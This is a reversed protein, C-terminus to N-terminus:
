LLIFKTKKKIILKKKEKSSVSIKWVNIQYKILYLNMIVILLFVHLFTWNGEENCRYGGHMKKDNFTCKEDFFLLNKNNPNCNKKYKEFIIKAENIFKDYIADNYGTYIPVREDVLNIKYEQPKNLENNYDLNTFSEMITYRLTFGLNTIEKSLNDQIKEDDTSIVTSPSQSSDFYSYDLKPNGFYGVVIAGGDNQFGKIFNSTASYIDM